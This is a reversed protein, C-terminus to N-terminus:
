NTRLDRDTHCDHHQSVPKRLNQPMRSCAVLRDRRDGWRRSKAPRSRPSAARHAPGSDCIVRDSIAPSCILPGRALSSMDAAGGDSRRV